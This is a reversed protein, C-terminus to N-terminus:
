LKRAQSAMAVSAAPGRCSAALDLEPDRVSTSVDMLGLLTHFLNDQSVPQDAKDRLCAFDIGMRQRFDQSLWMLFPVHTQTDPAMFWPAAHLYLGNEGLSEGHDSMYIMGAVVRDQAQLREISAALIHDTYRISNDYANVVEEISCKALDATRCDPQFDAFEPPYRLYYSPGHSGIMHLVLVTDETMAAVTDDLVKLLAQDTCEGMECAAPDITADIQHSTGTRRAIYQDGTNNDWWLPTVGAHALVDFLNESGMFAENSYGSRPFPSFMCPLSVATATGCSTTDTFNVIDLKALEPTTDRAYGNLGFNQARATEGAFVVMLVPKGGSALLPGKVADTGLPKVEQNQSRLEMKTYKYIAAISAGPQYSAMLDRHERIAAANAKLDLFLLGFTLAFGTLATLPFKWLIHRVRPYRLRPVFLLAAPLVGTLLMHRVYAGTVLHRSEAVTTNMVNQIMLKDILIGLQDQYWASAAALLLIAAAAPRHLRPLSVLSLTFVTLTWVAAGFLIVHLPDGKFVTTLRTWFGANFMALMYTAVLMNFETAGLEPRHRRLESRISM